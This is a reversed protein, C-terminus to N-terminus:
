ITSAITSQTCLFDYKSLKEDLSPLGFVHLSGDLRRGYAQVLVLGGLPINLTIFWLLRQGGM